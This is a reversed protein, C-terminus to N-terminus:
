FYILARDSHVLEIVNKGFCVNFDDTDKKMNEQLIWSSWINEQISCINMSFGYRFYSYKIWHHDQIGYWSKIDWSIINSLM